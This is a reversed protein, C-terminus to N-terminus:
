ATRERSREREHLYLPFGCSVGVLLTTAIAPWLRIKPHERRESAMFTFLALASLVVDLAFFTGIRTSVLEAVFRAPLHWDCSQGRLWNLFPVYPVVAGLVSLFLYIPKLPLM